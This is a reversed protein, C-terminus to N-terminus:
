NSVVARFPPTTNLTSGSTFTINNVFTKIEIERGAKIVAPNCLAPKLKFSEHSSNGSLTIAILAAPNGGLGTWTFSTSDAQGQRYAAAVDTGQSGENFIVASNASVTTSLGSTNNNGNNGGIIDVIFDGQSSPINLTFSTSSTIKQKKISLFPNELDINYFVSAGMSVILSNKWHASVASNGTPNLLYWVEVKSTGERLSDLFILKENGFKVSDIINSTSSFESGIVVLLLRNSNTGPTLTPTSIPGTGGNPANEAIQVTQFIAGTKSFTGSNVKTSGVTRDMLNGSKLYLKRNVTQGQATQFFLTFLCFVSLIYIFRKM